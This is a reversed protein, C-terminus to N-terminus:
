PRRRVEGHMARWRDSQERFLVVLREHGKLVWESFAVHSIGRHRAHARLSQGEFLWFQRVAQGYRPTEEIVQDLAVQTDHVRGLVTPTRSGFAGCQVQSDGPWSSPVISGGPRLTEVAWERMRDIFRKDLRALIKESM